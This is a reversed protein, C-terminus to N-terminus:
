IENLMVTDHFHQECKDVLYQLLATENSRVQRVSICHFKEDNLRGICRLISGRATQLLKRDIEWFVCSIRGSGDKILFSKDMKQQNRSITSELTGCIEYLVLEKDTMSKSWVELGQISTTIVKPINSVVSKPPNLITKEAPTVRPQEYLTKKTVNAQSNNYTRSFSSSDTLSDNAGQGLKNVTSYNPDCSTYSSSSNGYNSNKNSNCAVYRNINLSNGCQNSNANNQTVHTYQRQSSQSEKVPLHSPDAYVAQRQRKRSNSGFVPITANSINRNIGFM